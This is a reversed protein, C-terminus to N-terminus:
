GNKEGEDFYVEYIIAKPRKRIHRLAYGVLQGILDCIPTGTEESLARLADAVEVPVRMLPYKGNYRADYKDM